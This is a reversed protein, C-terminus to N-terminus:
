NQSSHINSDSTTSKKLLDLSILKGNIAVAPVAQIGCTKAIFIEVKPM